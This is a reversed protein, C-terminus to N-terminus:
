RSTRRRKQKRRSKRSRAAARRADEEIRFILTEMILELDEEDAYEDDDGLDPGRIFAAITMKRDHFRRVFDRIERLDELMGTLGDVISEIPGQGYIRGTERAEEIISAMEDHQLEFLVDQLHELQRELLRIRSELHACRAEIDDSTDKSDNTPTELTRQLLDREIALLSAADGERYARNLKKMIETHEREKDPDGALDPHFIGALRLFIDRLERSPESADANWPPRHAHHWEERESEDTQEDPEADPVVHGPSEGHSRPLLWGMLHLDEYVREIQRQSRKGFKRTRFIEAFLEHIEDQVEMCRVRIPLVERTMATAFAVYSETVREIDKRTRGIRNELRRRKKDLERLRQTGKPIVLGARHRKNGRTRTM